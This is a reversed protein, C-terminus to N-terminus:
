GSGRCRGKPGCRRLAATGGPGTGGGCRVKRSGCTARSRASRMAAPSGGPPRWGCGSAGSSSPPRTGAVNRMGCAETMRGRGGPTVVRLEVLETQNPTPPMGPFRGEPELSDNPQSLPRHWHNARRRLSAADIREVRNHCTLPSSSAPLKMPTHWSNTPAIWPPMASSPSRPSMSRMCRRRIGLGSLIHPETAFM